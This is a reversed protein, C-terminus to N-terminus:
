ASGSGAFARYAAEITRVAGDLGLAASNIVLDYHAPDAVEKNFYQRSFAARDSETAQIRNMAEGADIHLGKALNAVRDALPATIRVRLAKGPPLVFNAGRGVLVAGGHDGITCVVKMLHRLYEDAWLHKDTFFGVGLRGGAQAPARGADGGAGDADERKGRHAPHDRPEHFGFGLARALRKAM